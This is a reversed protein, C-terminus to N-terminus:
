KGRFRKGTHSMVHRQRNDACLTKELATVEARLHRLLIEDLGGDNGIGDDARRLEEFENAADRCKAGDSLGNTQRRRQHLRDSGVIHGRCQDIDREGRWAAITSAGIGKGNRNSGRGSIYEPAVREYGNTKDRGSM